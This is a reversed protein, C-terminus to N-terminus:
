WWSGAFAKVKCINITDRTTKHSIIIPTYKFRELAEPDNATSQLLRTCLIEYDPLSYNDGIGRQQESLTGKENWAISSWVCSLLNVFKQDHVVHFYKKLEVVKSVQQWLSAGHLVLQGPAKHSINPSCNDILKHSFLSLVHMPQLQGFDSTLILNVGFPLTTSPPNWSQAQTMRASIKSLLKALIMSIEDIVLYNVVQWINELENQNPVWKSKPLMM